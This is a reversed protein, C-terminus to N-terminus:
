KGKRTDIDLFKYALCYGSTSSIIMVLTLVYLALRAYGDVYLSGVAFFAFALIFRILRDIIGENKMNKNEYFIIGKLKFTKTFKFNSIGGLATIGEPPIRVHVLLNDIIIEKEFYVEGDLRL